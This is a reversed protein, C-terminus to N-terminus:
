GVGAADVLDEAGDLLPLQLLTHIRDILEDLVAPNSQDTCSLQEVRASPTPARACQTPVAAILMNVGALAELVAALLIPAAALLIRRGAILILM